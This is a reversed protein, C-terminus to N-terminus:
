ASQPPPADPPWVQGIMEALTPLAVRAVPGPQPLQWPAASPLGAATAVVSGVAAAASAAILSPADASVTQGALTSPGRASESLAPQTLLGIVGDPACLCVMPTATALGVLLLLVAFTRLMPKSDAYRDDALVPLRKQKQL